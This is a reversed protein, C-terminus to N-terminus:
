GQRWRGFPTRWTVPGAPAVRIPPLPRQFSFIRPYLNPKGEGSRDLAAEDEGPSEFASLDRCFLFTGKTAQCSWMDTASATFSGGRLNASLEDRPLGKAGKACDRDRTLRAQGPGLLGLVGPLRSAVWTGM